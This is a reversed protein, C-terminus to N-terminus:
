RNGKERIHRMKVTVAIIKKMGPQIRPVMEGTTTLSVRCLRLLAPLTIPLIYAKEVRPAMIPVKAVPNRRIEQIPVRFMMKRMPMTRITVARTEPPRKMRFLDTTM